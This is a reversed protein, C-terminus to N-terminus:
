FGEISKQGKRKRASVKAVKQGLQEKVDEAVSRSKIVEAVTAVPATRVAGLTKLGNRFLARARVRGIGRLRLLTLLEERVGYKLRTRIKVLETAVKPFEQLRSFEVLSYMLWDAVDLKARIEGPRIDYKELLEEEDKEEIWDQMFLATKVSNLYEDYEADFASPENTLLNGDFSAAEEQITDYEKMRVRLLPRLELTQSILQLFSMPVLKKSSAKRLAIIFGHATLPDLYLEAVRKGLRTARYSISELDDASVFDNRSSIIFEFEELLTLMKGIIHELKALDKYQYAWFTGEFFDMVQAHTKVFNSAILSLLATRLAPEVALKSFIEEPEGNVYKDMFMDRDPKSAAIIIAEGFADYKPRGARGAMQMYELVPILALGRHGFRRLDKIITRFAPLDVGMALSPTCAIIRIKGLRFNDEVLERQKATLGAHHFATGKTVCKALRECQRTPRSLAKLIKESLLDLEPDHLGTKAAIDEAAKEASRKTNAFVLAQKKKAITDLALTLSPNGHREEMDVVAM